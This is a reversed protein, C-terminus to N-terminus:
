DGAIFNRIRWRGDERVVGIRYDILSRMRDQAVFGRTGDEMQVQWRLAEWDEEVDGAFAALLVMDWDLTRLQEDGDVAAYLPVDNGMIVYSGYADHMPDLDQAFYWPLTLSEGDSACGLTMLDDLAEWLEYEKDALRERLLPKGSGGGFDLYVDDKTLALLADANRATVARELSNLFESAGPVDRCEDRPAYDGVPRAPLTESAREGSNEAEREITQTAPEEAESCATVALCATAAILCHRFTM